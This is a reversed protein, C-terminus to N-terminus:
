STMAIRKTCQNEFWLVMGVDHFRITDIIDIIFIGDCVPYDKCSIHEREYIIEDLRLIEIEVVKELHNIGSIPMLEKSEYTLRTPDSRLSQEM